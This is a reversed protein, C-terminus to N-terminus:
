GGVVADEEPGGLRIRAWWEQLGREGWRVGGSIGRFALMYTLLCVACRVGLSVEDSKLWHWALASRWGAGWSDDFNGAKHGLDLRIM